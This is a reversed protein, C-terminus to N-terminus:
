RDNRFLRQLQKLIDEETMGTNKLREINKGFKDLIDTQERSHSEITRTEERSPQIFHLEFKNEKLKTLEQICQNFDPTSGTLVLWGKTRTMATFMMDRLVVNNANSFVYDVGCIYVAGKENGKAKNITTLTVCGERTFSLYNGALTALNFTDISNQALYMDIKAFYSSINKRDLCIVCIDEPRLNECFIDNSISRAICRCEENMGEFCRYRVSGKGFKSNSYSPTNEEPRVVVMEDGTKCNGEKVHFGLSNWHDNKDLRQLVKENYIGLGLSFAAILSLRPTRYCKKLVIDHNSMKDREFDVYYSGDDKKGFTEREDQIKVDFINQFDDYAWVIKKNKSLKYCLQYFPSTFDQGEDILVLDYKPKIDTRKMLTDCIGGLPDRSNIKLADSFNLLVGNNDACAMSYVGPTYSSGWAHCIIINDWNPEKNDSFYRYARDIHGRITDHLSKTYYTYLIKDEPHNLHYIAAKQTLVITKGSGALGRIRQPGDIESLAAQKQEIDFRAIYEEIENLIGGKTVKSSDVKRDIKKKTKVTGELYSQILNFDDKEISVKNEDLVNKINEITSLVFDDSVNLKESSIIITVIDYKLANRGKKLISNKLFCGAICSYLQNIREEAKQLNENSKVHDFYYIGYNKSLLILKAQIKGVDIDGSYIPFMYYLLSDDDKLVGNLKDYVRYAFTDQKLNDFNGIFEM